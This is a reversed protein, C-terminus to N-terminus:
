AKQYRMDISIFEGNALNIPSLLPFAVEWVSGNPRVLVPVMRDFAGASDYVTGVTAAPRNPYLTSPLNLLVQPNTGVICQMQGNIIINGADDTKYAPIFGSSGVFGAAISPEGVPASAVPLINRYANISWNLAPTLPLLLKAIRLPLTDVSFPMFVAPQGVKVSATRVEYTDGSTGNEFSEFGAPDYTVDVDWYLFDGPNVIVPVAGGPVRYIEGNLSIFGPAYTQSGPLGSVQCGSIIFSSAPDIGFASVLGYIAERVAAQEFRFDDWEFGIGANIDTKLKNM